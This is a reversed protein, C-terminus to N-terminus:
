RENGQYRQKLRELRTLNPDVSLYAKRCESRHSPGAFELIAFHAEQFRDEIRDGLTEVLEEYTMNSTIVLPSYNRYRCDIVEHLLPYEDRGGVSVGLEDLVLLGANRCEDVPDKANRDDYTARLAKLLANQKYILVSKRLFQARMCSVALHTKGTGPVGLLLLFGRPNRAYECVKAHNSIEAENRAEWNDLTAHLINKPVGSYFLCKQIQNEYEAAKCQACSYEPAWIGDYRKAHELISERDLASATPGHIACEATQPLADMWLDISNYTAHLEDQHRQGEQAWDRLAKFIQISM